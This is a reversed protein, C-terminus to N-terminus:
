SIAYLLSLDSIQQINEATGLAEKTNSAPLNSKQTDARRARSMAVIGKNIKRSILCKM